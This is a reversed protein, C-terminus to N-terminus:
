EFGDKKDKLNKLFLEYDQRFLKTIKYEEKFTKTLITFAYFMWLTGIILILPKLIKYVLNEDSTAIKNISFVLAISSAIILLIVISFSIIIRKGAKKINKEVQLENEKTKRILEKSSITKSAM